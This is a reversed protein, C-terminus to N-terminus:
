GASDPDGPRTNRKMDTVCCGAQVIRTVHGPDVGWVRAIARIGLGSAKAKRICADRRERVALDALRAAEAAQDPSLGAEGLRHRIDRYLSWRGKM